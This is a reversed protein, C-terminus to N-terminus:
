TLTGVSTDFLGYSVPNHLIVRGPVCYGDLHASTLLQREREKKEKKKKLYSHGISYSIQM